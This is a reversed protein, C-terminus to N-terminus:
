LMTLVVLAFEGLLRPDRRDSARTRCLLALLGLLTGVIIKIMLRVTGPALSVINVDHDLAYPGSGHARPTFLRYLVGVISQNVEQPSAAGEAVFPMVMRHWWMGLCEGNFRPGVIAGPVILLFIGMGLLGWGVTRWSRKYAFYAFFLAPTVKYTTALALL